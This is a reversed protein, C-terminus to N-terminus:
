KIVPVKQYFSDYSVPLVQKQYGNQMAVKAINYNYIGVTLIIAIIIITVLTWFYAWFNNDDM